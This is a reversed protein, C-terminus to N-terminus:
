GGAEQPALTRRMVIADVDDPQYYHPRVAISEFGLAAYLTQAPPNDARVELFLDDAGRAEAEVTLLGMLERALGRRRASPVVAITQIDAQGSGRPASLGAYAVLAGADDTVVLYHGHVSALEAAMMEPSWADTPFTAHEIAMIADLDDATARRLSVVSV